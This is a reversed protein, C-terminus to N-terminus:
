ARFRPRTAALRRRVQQGPLEREREQARMLARAGAAAGGGLPPQACPDNGGKGVRKRGRLLARHGVDDGIQGLGRAHKPEQMAIDAGALGHHREKGGRMHDLSSPLRRQHRRGFNQRPLMNGGDRRKGGAGADADGDEGAALAAALAGFEQARERHAVDIKEDAGVRQKLFLDGEAIEREGDDVLLMAEAHM